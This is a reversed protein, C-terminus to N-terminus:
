FFSYFTLFANYHYKLPESDLIMEVKGLVEAETLSLSSIDSLILDEKRKEKKEKIIGNFEWSIKYLGMDLTSLEVDMRRHAPYIRLLM